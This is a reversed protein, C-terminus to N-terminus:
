EESKMVLYYKCKGTQERKLRFVMFGSDGLNAGNLHGDNLIVVVATASGPAKTLDFAKDLIVVPNPALDRMKESYM